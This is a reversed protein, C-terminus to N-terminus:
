FPLDDDFDNSSHKPWTDEPYSYVSRPQTYDMTGNVNASVKTNATQVESRLRREKLKEAIDLAEDVTRVGLASLLGSLDAIATNKDVTKQEREQLKKHEERPHRYSGSLAGQVTIGFGSLDENLWPIV